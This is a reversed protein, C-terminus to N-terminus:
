EVKRGSRVTIGRIYAALEKSLAESPVRWGWNGDVTGPVNIRESSDMGLYDQLPIICIAANSHQVMEVLHQCASVAGFVPAHETDHVGHNTRIYLTIMRQVDQGLSAYWGVTTDNDHTGTYAVANEQYNGPLHINQPDGDFAFQLVKM